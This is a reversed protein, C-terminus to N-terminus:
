AAVCKRHYSPATVRLILRDVNQPYTIAYQQALFGGFSGGAIIAPTDGNFHTRIADIDDVIQAFTYPETHSSEGHGRYDFSLVRYEDRFEAFRNFDGSHSGIM